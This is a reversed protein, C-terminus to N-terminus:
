YRQQERRLTEHLGELATVANGAAVREAESPLEAATFELEDRLWEYAPKLERFGEEREWLYRAEALRRLNERRRGATNKLELLRDTVPGSLRSFKELARVLTLDKTPAARKAEQLAREMQFLDKVAKMSHSEHMGKLGGRTHSAVAEIAWTEGLHTGLKSVPDRPHFYSTARLRAADADSWRGLRQLAEKAGFGNWSVVRVREPAQPNTRALDYGLVQALGGGLSHGTVAVEGGRALEAQVHTLLKAYAASRAQSLGWNLDAALDKKSQTGAIAVVTPLEKRAASTPRYVAAKFGTAPDTILYSVEYDAPISGLFRRHQQVLEAASKAGDLEPADYIHSATLMLEMDRAKEPPLKVYTPLQRRLQDLSWTRSPVRSNIARSFLELQASIKRRVALNEEGASLRRLERRVDPRILTDPALRAVAAARVEAVPDRFARRLLEAEQEPEPNLSQILRIRAEPAANRLSPLPSLERRAERWRAALEPPLARLIQERYRPDLSALEARHRASVPAGAKLERYLDAALRRSDLPFGRDLALLRLTDRLQESPEAAYVRAFVAAAQPHESRAHLRLWALRETEPLQAFAAAGRLLAPGDPDGPILGSRQNRLELARLWEDMEDSLFDGQRAVQARMELLQEAQVALSAPDRPLAAEVAAVREPASKLRALLSPPELKAAGSGPLQTFAQAWAQELEATAPTALPVRGLLAYLAACDPEKASAPASLALALGLSWPLWLFKRQLRLAEM